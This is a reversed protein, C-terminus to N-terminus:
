HGLAKPGYVWSSFRNARFVEKAISGVVFSAVSGSVSAMVILDVHEKEAVALVQESVTKPNLENAIVFRASVGLKSAEELWPKVAKRAGSEQDAYYSDPMVLVPGALDMVPILLGVCHFIIIEDEFIKAFDLFHRFAKHSFKSFDTPFLIKKTFVPAKEGKEEEGHTLFLVPHKSHTLLSEAFSGLVLRHLGSRGHSSVIIWKAHNKDCFNLLGAVAEKSDATELQIISAALADNIGLNKLYLDISKKFFEPNQYAHLEYKPSMIFVPQLKSDTLKMKELLRAALTRSPKVATESPDIAWVVVSKNTEKM